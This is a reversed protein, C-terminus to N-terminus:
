PKIRTVPEAASASQRLREIQAETFPVAAGPPPPDPVLRRAIEQSLAEVAEGTLASLVLGAPREGPAAPLDSKNHVVLVKPWADLLAQDSQSWAQNRDFVLVALDARALKERALEMGARELPDDGAAFGATDSFEVPWGDLATSATVVDRTTGPTHHVIARPYGVLANILSSKGVNTRGALVVRWPQVLHRGLEARALLADILRTASAADGRALAADIEGLARRLAGQYQDLLIAATREAHHGAAWEQWTVVRGGQEILVREILAAAALGGHCHLEVSEDSRRRVVVEEGAAGFRGFVLRDGPFSRLPRGSVPRLQAGVTELAGPGEILLTAVAGRGPPTLEVIRFPQDPM